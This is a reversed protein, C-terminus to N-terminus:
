FCLDDEQITMKVKAGMKSSMKQHGDPITDKITALWRPHWRKNNVLKTFRGVKSKM